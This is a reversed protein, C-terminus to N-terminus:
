IDFLSYTVQWQGLLSEQNVYVQTQVTHKGQAVQYNMQANGTSYIGTALEGQYGCGPNAYQGDVLTCIAWLTGDEDSRVQISAAIQIVCGAANNCTIPTPSDVNDFGFPLDVGTANYYWNIVSTVPKMPYTKKKTQQAKSAGPPLPSPPLNRSAAHGELSALSLAFSLATSFILRNM